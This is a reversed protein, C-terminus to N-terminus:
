KGSWLVAVNGRQFVLTASTLKAIESFLLSRQQRDSTTGKNAKVKVLNKRSLQDSLESILSETIGVRGIRVSVELGQSKSLNIIRRPVNDSM